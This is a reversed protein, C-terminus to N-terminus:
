IGRRAYEVDEMSPSFYENTIDIQNPHILSKGDFGFSKGTICDSILGDKDTIDMYVGDFVLKKAARAAIICKSMSYHLHNRNSNFKAKIDKTLDNCGFVIAGVSKHAAIKEVNIVGLSTEIMAWLSIPKAILSVTENLSEYDDVKPLVLVDLGKLNKIMDIDDKGYISSHPCNIRIACYPLKNSSVKNHIHLTDFFQIINLRSEIRTYIIYSIYTM